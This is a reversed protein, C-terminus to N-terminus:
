RLREVSNTRAHQRLERRKHLALAALRYFAMRGRKTIRKRSITQPQCIRGFYHGKARSYRPVLQGPRSKSAPKRWWPNLASESSISAAGELM